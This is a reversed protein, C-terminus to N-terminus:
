PFLSAFLSSFSHACSYLRFPSMPNSSSFHHPQAKRGTKTLSEMVWETAWVSKDQVRAAMAISEIVVANKWRGGGVQGWTLGEDSRNELNCCDGWSRGRWGNEVTFGSAHKLFSCIDIEKMFLGLGETCCAFNGLVLRVMMEVRMRQWEELHQRFSTNWACYCAWRNRVVVPKQRKDLATNGSRFTLSESRRWSVGWIDSSRPLRGVQGLDFAM